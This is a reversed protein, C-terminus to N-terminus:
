IGTAWPAASLNPLSSNALYKWAICWSWAVRVVAVGRDLGRQTELREKTEENLRTYSEKVLKVTDLIRATRKELDCRLRTAPTLLLFFVNRTGEVKMEDSNRGPPTQEM